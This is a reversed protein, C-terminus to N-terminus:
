HPVPASILQTPPKTTWCLSCDLIQFPISHSLHYLCFIYGQKPQKLLIIQNNSENIQVQLNHLNISNFLDGRFTVSLNMSTNNKM